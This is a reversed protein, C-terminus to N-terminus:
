IVVKSMKEQFLRFVAGAFKFGFGMGRVGCM